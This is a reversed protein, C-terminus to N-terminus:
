HNEENVDLCELLDNSKRYFIISETYLTLDIIRKLLLSYDEFKLYEKIQEFQKQFENM